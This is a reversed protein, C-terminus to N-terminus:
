KVKKHRTVLLGTDQYVTLGNQQCEKLMIMTIFHDKDLIIPKIELKNFQNGLPVMLGTHLNLIMLLFHLNDKLIKQRIIAEM